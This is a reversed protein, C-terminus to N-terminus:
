RLQTQVTKNSRRPAFLNLVERVQTNLPAVPPLGGRRCDPGTGPTPM